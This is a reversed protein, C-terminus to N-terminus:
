QSNMSVYKLANCSLFTMATFFVAKIFTLIKNISYCAKENFIQSHRIYRLQLLMMILVLTVFMDLFATKKLNNVSIDKSINRLCLPIANIESDKAKFQIIEVSNVFLYSNAENYLLSKESYRKEAILTIDDLGQTPGEVLFLIDKKKNHVHVSSSM